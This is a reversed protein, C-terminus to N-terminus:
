LPHIKKILGFVDDSVASSLLVSVFSLLTEVEGEDDHEAREAVPNQIRSGGANNAGPKRAGLYLELVPCNFKSSAWSYIVSLRLSALTQLFTPSNNNLYYNDNQLFFIAFKKM